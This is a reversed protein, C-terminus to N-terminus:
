TFGNRELLDTLWSVIPAGREDMHTKAAFYYAQIYTKLGVPSINHNEM